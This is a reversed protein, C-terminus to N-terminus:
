RKGEVWDNMARKMDLDRKAVRARYWVGAAACWQGMVGLLLLWEVASM